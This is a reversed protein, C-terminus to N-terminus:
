PAPEWQDAFYLGSWKDGNDLYVVADEDLRLVRRVAATEGTAPHRWRTGPAPFSDGGAVRQSLPPIDTPEDPEPSVGIAAALFDVAAVVVAGPTEGLRAELGPLLRALTDEQKPTMPIHLTM